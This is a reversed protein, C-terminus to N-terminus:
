RFGVGGYGDGVYLTTQDGDTMNSAPKGSQAAPADITCQSAINVPEADAASAAMPIVSFLLMFCLLLSVLAKPSFRKM